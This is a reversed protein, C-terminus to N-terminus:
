GYGHSVGEAGADSFQLVRVPEPLGHYSPSVCKELVYNHPAGHIKNTSVLNHNIHHHSFCKGTLSMM